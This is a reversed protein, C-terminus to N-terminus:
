CTSVTRQIALLVVVITFISIIAVVLSYSNHDTM